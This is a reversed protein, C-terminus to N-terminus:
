RGHDHAVVNPPLSTGKVAQSAMEGLVRRSLDDTDRLGHWAEM